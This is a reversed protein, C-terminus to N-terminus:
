GRQSREEERYTQIERLVERDSPAKKKRRNQQDIEKFLDKLEDGLAPLSLKMVILKDDKRYVALKTKPRIALQRRMEQPIVIQGKTGVVAIEPEELSKMRYSM